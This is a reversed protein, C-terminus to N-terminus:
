RIYNDEGNLMKLLDLDYMYYRGKEQRIEKFFRSSTVIIYDFEINALENKTIIDFRDRKSCYKDM